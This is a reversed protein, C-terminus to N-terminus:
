IANALEGHLIRLAHNYIQSVRARTLGMGRGIEAQAKGRLTERVIKRERLPLCDIAELLKAVIERNDEQNCRHCPVDFTYDTAIQLGRFPIVFQKYYNGRLWTTYYTKWSSLAPNFRKEAQCALMYCWGLADDYAIDDYRKAIWAAGMSAVDLKMSETVENM